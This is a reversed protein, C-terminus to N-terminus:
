EGGESEGGSEGEGVVETETEVAAEAEQLAAALKRPATVTAIITTELDDLLKVGEPPTVDSLHLSESLDLKSVDAQIAEPIDAPLAEVNVERTVHELIGGKSIGPSEDAGVIEVPVTAHIPKSLDVRLFDVHLVDGRVPHRQVEKVVAPAAKGGDVSVELVAGRHAIAQRLAGEAVTVPVPGEGGGYLVGPIQGQRRMRRAARSHAAERANVDLKITQDAM